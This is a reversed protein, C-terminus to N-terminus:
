INSLTKYSHCASWFCGFQILMCVVHLMVNGMGLKIVVAGYIGWAVTWIMFTGAMMKARMISKQLENM